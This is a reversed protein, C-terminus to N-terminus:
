EFSPPAFAYIKYYRADGAEVDYNNVHDNIQVGEGEGFGHDTGTSEIRWHTEGATMKGIRCELEDAPKGEVGSVFSVVQKRNEFEGLYIWMHDGWYDRSTLDANNYSLALIITGEPITSGDAMEYYPRDWTYEGNKLVNIKQKEGDNMVWYVDSNIGDLNMGNTNWGHTSNPIGHYQETFPFPQGDAVQKWYDIDSGWFGETSIGLTALTYMVLESCDLGNKIINRTVAENSMDSYDYRRNNSYEPCWEALFLAREIIDAGTPRDKTEVKIEMIPDKGGKVTYALVIIDSVDVRGDGSMDARVLAKDRLERIGKVHAALLSIDTVTVVGDGNIDPKNEEVTTEEDTVTKDEVATTEEDTSVAEILDGFRFEETDASARIAQGGFPSVLSGFVAAAALAAVFRKSRM